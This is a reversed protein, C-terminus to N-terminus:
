LRNITGGARESARRLMGLLNRVFGDFDIQPWQHSGFLTRAVQLAEHSREIVLVRHRNFLLEALQLRWGWQSPSVMGPAFGGTSNSPARSKKMSSRASSNLPSKRSCM